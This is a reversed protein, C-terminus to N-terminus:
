GFGCPASQRGALGAYEEVSRASLRGNVGQRRRQGPGFQIAGDGVVLRSM